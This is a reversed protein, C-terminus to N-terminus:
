ASFGTWWFFIHVLPFDAETKTLILILVKKMGLNRKFSFSFSVFFENISSLAMLGLHLLICFHRGIPLLTCLM